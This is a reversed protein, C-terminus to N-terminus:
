TRKDPTRIITTIIEGVRFGWKRMTSKNVLVHPEMLWLWDEVDIVITKKSVPAMLAYDMRLANGFTTLLATGEVDSATGTYKGQGTKKFEWRRQLEEGDNFVFDETLVGHLSGDKEEWVGRMIANFSRRVKGGRGLIVGHAALEGRFFEELVLPVGGAANEEATIGSSCGMFIVACIPLLLKDM